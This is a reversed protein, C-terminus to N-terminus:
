GAPVALRREMKGASELDRLEQEIVARRDVGAVHVVFGSGRLVHDAITLLNRAVENLAAAPGVDEHGCREAIGREDAVMEGGIRAANAHPHAVLIKGPDIRLGASGDVLPRETPM